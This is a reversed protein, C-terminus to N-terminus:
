DKVEGLAIVTYKEINAMANGRLVAKLEEHDDVDVLTAYGKLGAIPYVRAKGSRVVDGMHVGIRIRVADGAPGASAALDTQIALAARMAEVASDFLAVFCDGVSVDLTGGHRPVVRTFVDRIRTLAAFARAEDEGMLRSFGTMDALLVGHLRRSSSSTTM